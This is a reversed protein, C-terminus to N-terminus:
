RTMVEKKTSINKGCFETKGDTFGILNKKGYLDLDKRASNETNDGSSIIAKKCSDQSIEEKATTKINKGIKNIKLNYAKSKL